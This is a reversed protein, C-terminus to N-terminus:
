VRECVASGHDAPMEALEIPLLNSKTEQRIFSTHSPSMTTTAIIIYVHLIAPVEMQYVSYMLCWMRFFVCSLVCPIWKESLLMEQERIITRQHDAFWTLYM